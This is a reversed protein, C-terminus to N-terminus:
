NVTLQHSTQAIQGQGVSVQGGSPLAWVNSGILTMVGASVLAIHGTKGSKGHSRSTEAVPIWLKRTLDWVLRYVHNLSARMRISEIPTKVAHRM